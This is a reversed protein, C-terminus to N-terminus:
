LNELELELAEIETKLILSEELMEANEVLKALFRKKQKIEYRLKNKDHAQNLVDREKDTLTM